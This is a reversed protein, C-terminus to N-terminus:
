HVLGRMARRLVDRAFHDNIEKMSITEKVTSEDSMSRKRKAAPQECGYNIPSLSSGSSKDSTDCVVEQDDEGEPNRRTRGKPPLYSSDSTDSQGDSEDDEDLEAFEEIAALVVNKKPKKQQQEQLQIASENALHLWVNWATHADMMSSVVSGDDEVLPVVYEIIVSDQMIFVRGATRFDSVLLPIGERHSIATLGLIEFKAQVDVRAPITM